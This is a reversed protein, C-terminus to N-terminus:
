FTAILTGLVYQCPLLQRILTQRVLCRKPKSISVL